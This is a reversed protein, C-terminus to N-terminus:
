KIVYNEGTPVIQKYDKGGVEEITTTAETAFINFVRGEWKLNTFKLEGQYRELWTVKGTLKDVSDFRLGFFGHVVGQLM